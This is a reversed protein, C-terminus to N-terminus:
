IEYSELYEKETFHLKAPIIVVAPLETEKNLLEKVTKYNINSNSGVNFIVVKSDNKIIRDGSQKELKLLIELAQAVSLYRKEEAIVDLLCLTHLNREKNSKILDYVSQPLKGKTKEPFPISVLPGFKQIHLGTEAIASVISANHIVKTIIGQKRADLLLASHTTVILPDGQVFIVIDNNKAEKLIESSNEELDKRTLEVISKGVLKSLEDLSGGWKGTYLEMYVKDAKGAAELGRLTLDHEDFLGLGVLTIM